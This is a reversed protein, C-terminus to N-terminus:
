IDNSETEVLEFSEGRSGADFAMKLMDQISFCDSFNRSLNNDEPEGDYASFVCNGDVTIEIAQRYDCEIYAEESRTIVNVKM